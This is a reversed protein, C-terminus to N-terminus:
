DKIRIETRRYLFGGTFFMVLYILSLVAGITHGASFQYLAIGTSIVGFAFLVWSIKIKM